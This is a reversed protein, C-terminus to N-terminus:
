KQEKRLNSVYNMADKLEVFYKDTGDGKAVMYYMTGDDLKGYYIAKKKFSMFHKRDKM